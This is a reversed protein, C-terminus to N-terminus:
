STQSRGHTTRAPTGAHTRRDSRRQRRDLRPGPPSPAGPTHQADIPTLTLTPWSTVQQLLSRDHTVLVISAPTELLAQSLEDVLTVSLHHTPEDLLLISPRDLLIRALAVRRRQGVSLRGLPRRLDADRLLGTARIADPQAPALASLPTQGPDFKAEQSLLGVTCRPSRTISGDDPQLHGALLALLTSKGAGGPGRLLLRDGGALNILEDDPMAVRGRLRLGDASLLTDSAAADLEPAQFSLPEPPVPGRSRREQDLRRQLLRVTGAARSARGHKAAGKGPRWRQPAAARADDLQRELQTEARLSDAYRAQWDALMGARAQRYARYTGAFTTGATGATPDLDLLSTAVADLLWRDHTVLVIIGTFARLRDTLHDLAQDDLHNSPEDLLIAGTPDFLSCGLRLRYRQGVSLEHLRAHDTFTAGFAELEEGLRRQADWADLREADELAAAYREAADPRDDALAASAEELAVLAEHANRTATACVDAVTSGAATELEQEVLTLTTTCTVSGADPSLTRALLRLLTSKGVGNDGVVALCQGASVTLSIGDLV